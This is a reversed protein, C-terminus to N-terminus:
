NFNLMIGQGCDGGAVIKGKKRAVSLANVAGKNDAGFGWKCELTEIDYSLLNGDTCGVILAGAEVEGCIISEPAKSQCIVNAKDRLDSVIINKDASATLLLDDGLVQMVNISGGHIRKSFVAENTRMDIANLKGDSSGATLILNADNESHFTINAVPSSHLAAKYIYKETNVDWFVVEGDRGGTVALSNQWAIQTVPGKHAGKLIGISAFPDLSTLQVSSDYGCSMAINSSDVIINSISGKHSFLSQCKMWSRDWLCLQADMGGSLVRNDSLMRCCTVWETHGYTKYFLQKLQKGDTLSYVRLGHDASGTVCYNDNSSTCLISAGHEPTLLTSNVPETLFSNKEM